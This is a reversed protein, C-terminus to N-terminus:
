RQKLKRTSRWIRTNQLYLEKEWKGNEKNQLCENTKTQRIITGKKIEM